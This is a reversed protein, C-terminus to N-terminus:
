IGDKILTSNSSTPRDLVGNQIILRINTKIGIYRSRNYVKLKDGTTVANNNDCDIYTWNIDSFENTSTFIRVKINSYNNGLSSFNGDIKSIRMYIKFTTSDTTNNVSFRKIRGDFFENDNSNNNNESTYMYWLSSILMVIVIISIIIKTKGM